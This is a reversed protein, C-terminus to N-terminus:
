TGSGMQDDMFNKLKNLNGMKGELNEFAPFDSVDYSIGVPSGEVMELKRKRMINVFTAIRVQQEHMDSPNLKDWVYPSINSPHGAVHPM